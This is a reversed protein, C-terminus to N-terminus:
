QELKPNLGPTLIDIRLLNRTPKGVIERSLAALMDREVAAYSEPVQQMFLTTKTFQVHPMPGMLSRVSPLMSFASLFFLVMLMNRINPVRFLQEQSVIM